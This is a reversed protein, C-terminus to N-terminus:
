GNVAGEIAKMEPAVPEVAKLTLEAQRPDKRTLNNEPTSYYLTPSRKPEPIKLKVSDSVIVQGSMEKTVPAVEITLVLAGKKGTREVAAVLDNLKQALEEETAGNRQERLFDIFPRAAM